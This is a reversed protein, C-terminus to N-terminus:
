VTVGFAQFSGVVMNDASSAGLPILPQIEIVVSEGPAVHGTSRGAATLDIQTVGSDSWEGGPKKVKFLGHQSGSNSWQLQCYILDRAQTNTFRIQASSSANANPFVVGFAQQPTWLNNTSDFSYGVGIEFIDEESIFLGVSVMINTLLENTTGLNVTVGTTKNIEPHLLDYTNITNKLIVASVGPDISGAKVTCRIVGPTPSYGEVYLDDAVAKVQAGECISGIVNRVTITNVDQWSGDPLQREVLWPTISM